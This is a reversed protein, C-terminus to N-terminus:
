HNFFTLDDSSGIVTKMLNKAQSIDFDDLKAVELNNLEDLIKVCKAIVRIAKQETKEALISM